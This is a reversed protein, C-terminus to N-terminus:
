PYSALLSDTTSFFFPNKKKFYRIASVKRLTRSLAVTHHDVQHVQLIELHVVISPVCANSRTVSQIIKVLLQM